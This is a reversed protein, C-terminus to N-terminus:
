KITIILLTLSKVTIFKKMCSMYSYGVVICLLMKMYSRYSYGVVICLLMKLFSKYSYGEVICFLVDFHKMYITTAYITIYEIINIFM